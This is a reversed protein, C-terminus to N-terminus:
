VVSKRDRGRHRPGLGPRARGRAPAHRPGLTSAGERRSALGRSARALREGREPRGEGHAKGDGVAHKVLARRCGDEDPWVDWISQRVKGAVNEEAPVSAALALAAAKGCVS